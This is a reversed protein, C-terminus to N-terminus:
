YGFLVAVKEFISLSAMQLALMCIILSCGKTPTPNVVPPIIIQQRFIHLGYIGIGVGV